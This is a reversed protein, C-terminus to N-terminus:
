PEFTCTRGTQTARDLYRALEPYSEALRDLATRIQKRVAQRAREEADASRRSRGGLSTGRTLEAELFALETRLKELRGLDHNAQAEDIEEQLEAARKRYATRADADLLEGAGGADVPKQARDLHTLDLVHISVGPHRVLHALVAIGKTAKVRVCRGRWDIRWVDGENEFRPAAGTEPETPQPTPSRDLEEDLRRLVGGLGHAKALEEARRRSANAAKTDKREHAITAALAHAEAEASVGGAKRALAVAQEAWQAADALEGAAHAAIAVVFAVPARWCMGIVGDGTFMDAEDSLADVLHRGLEADGAARAWRAAGLRATRDGSEFAASLTDRDVAAVGRERWGLALLFQAHVLAALQEGAESGGFVRSLASAVAEAEDENGTLEIWRALQYSHCMAANADGCAEGVRRVEEIHERTDALDATWLERLVGFAPVRWRHHPHADGAALEVVRDVHANAADFDGLEM